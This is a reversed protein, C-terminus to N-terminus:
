DNRHSCSGAGYAELVAKALASPLRNGIVSVAESFTDAYTHALIEIALSDKSIKLESQQRKKYEELIFSSLVLAGNGPEELYNKLASNCSIRVIRPSYTIIIEEKTHNM